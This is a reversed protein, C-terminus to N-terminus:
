NCFLGGKGENLEGVRAKGRSEDCLLSGPFPRPGCKELLSLEKWGSSVGSWDLRSGVKWWVKKRVDGFGPPM